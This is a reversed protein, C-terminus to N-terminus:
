QETTGCWAFVCCMDKMIDGSEGLSSLRIRERSDLKRIYREIRRNVIITTELTAVLGPELSESGLAAVSRSGDARTAELQRIEFVGANRQTHRGDVVV